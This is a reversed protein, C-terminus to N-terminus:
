LYNSPPISIQQYRKSYPKTATKLTSEQRGVGFNNLHVFNENVAEGAM